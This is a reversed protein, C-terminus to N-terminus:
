IAPRDTVALEFPVIRSGTAMKGCSPMSVRILKWETGCEAMSVRLDDEVEESFYSMTLTTRVNEELPSRKSIAIETRDALCYGAVTSQHVLTHSPWV